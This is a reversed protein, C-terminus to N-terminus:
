GDRGIRIFADPAFVGSKGTAAADAGRRPFNIAVLLGGGVAAGTKFLTRRSLGAPATM